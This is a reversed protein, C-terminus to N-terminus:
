GYVEYAGRAVGMMGMTGRTIYTYRGDTSTCRIIRHLSLRALSLRSRSSTSVLLDIEM